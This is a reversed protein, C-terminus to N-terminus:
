SASYYELRVDGTKKFTNYVKCVYVILLECKNEITRIIVLLIYVM